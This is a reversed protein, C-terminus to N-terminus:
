SATAPLKPQVAEADVVEGLGGVLPALAKVAARVYKPVACAEDYGEVIRRKADGSPEGLKAGIAQMTKVMAAPDQGIECSVWGLLRRLHNLESQKMENGKSEQDERTDM